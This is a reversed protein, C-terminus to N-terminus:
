KTAIQKTTLILKISIDIDILLNGTKVKVNTNILNTELQTSNTQFQSFLTLNM